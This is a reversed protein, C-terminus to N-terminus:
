DKRVQYMVLGAVVALLPLGILLVGVRWFQLTTKGIPRIRSTDLASPSLAILSDMKSLWFISNTFLEGNGPFRAVDLKSKAMRPDPFELLGNAVFNTNAIVVVRGKGARESIAGAWFPPPLDGSKPDYTPVSGRGLTSLDSEGWIKLDQPVPLIKTVTCGKAPHTDVPMLPVLAADLTQLTNTVPSDGYQNIVFIPPQKRAQEIFDDSSQEAGGIPEHVIIIDPKVDIGWDALVPHLSDSHPQFLFLASAGQNLHEQIKQTVEPSIPQPGFQGMQGSLPLVVWVADKIEEDSPEPMQGAGRQMMEMAFQGSLDKELVDFNYSRLRDAIVSFEAQGFMPATMPPGGARVFAIKPKKSQELSLIAATIQQEGSFRLRAPGSSPAMMGSTDGNKWVQTFNILRFDNDGEVAISRVATNGNDDETVIQRRVEDLKLEGLGKIKALLDDALKKMNQFQPVLNKGLDRIQQPATQDKQLIDLDKQVGEVQRSFSSLGSRVNEVQGKYDPIKKDLEEKIGANLSNLLSPFARVTSFAENVIDAQDESTVKVDKLTMMQKAQEDALKKIDDITKPFQTLVDRYAKVNGGYKRTIEGLWADLKAPESVPDIVEVQINSGEQRYRDLLDVVPTYFDQQQGVQNPRLRAYLSVLKIPQKVSKIINVTQPKLSQSSGTTLDARKNAWQGAYILIGAIVIVIISTLVVNSGYKAWREGQSEAAYGMPAPM